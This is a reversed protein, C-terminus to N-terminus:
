VAPTGEAPLVKTPAVPAAPLPQTPWVPADPEGPLQATPGPQAAAEAPVGTGPQAPPTPPELLWGQPQAVARAPPAAPVPPASRAPPASAVPPAAQPPVSPHFPAPPLAHPPHVPYHQPPPGARHPAFPVGPPLAPQFPPRRYLTIARGGLAKTANGNTVGGLIIGAGPVVKALMKKAARVGAMQALKLGLKVMVRGVTPRDQPLLADFRERGKAVALATRATQAYKHVNQLVLLEAARDPHAPDAGYNAALMLVMRAQTWALVGIDLVAGALPVAGSVAGSLRSQNVYRYVIMNALADPPAGPNQGKLKDLERAMRPGLRSVAELALHEPAYEPDAKMKQWLGSPPGDDGDAASDSLDPSATPETM